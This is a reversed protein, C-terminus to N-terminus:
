SVAKSGAEYIGQEDSEAVLSAVVQLHKRYAMVLKGNEGIKAGV